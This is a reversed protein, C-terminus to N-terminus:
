YIGCIWSIWNGKSVYYNELFEVLM